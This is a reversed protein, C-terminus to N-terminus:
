CNTGQSWQKQTETPQHLIYHPKGHFLMTWKMPFLLLLFVPFSRSCTVAALSICGCVCVVCLPRRGQFLTWIQTAMAEWSTMLNNIWSYILVYALDLSEYDKWVLDKVFSGKPCSCKKDSRYFLSLEWAFSSFCLLESRGHCLAKSKDRWCALCLHPM